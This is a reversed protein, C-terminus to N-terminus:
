HFQM